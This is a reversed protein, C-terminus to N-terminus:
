DGDVNGGVEERRREEEEKNKNKSIRNCIGVETGEIATTHRVPNLEALLINSCCSIFM